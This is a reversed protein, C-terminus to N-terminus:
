NRLFLVGEYTEFPEFPTFVSTGNNLGYFSYEQSYTEFNKSVYHCYLKKRRNDSGTVFIFRDPYQHFFIPITSLVTNYVQRMDGNNSNVLDNIDSKDENVDGFGLNFGETIKQNPLVIPNNIRNYVILKEIDSKGKSIFSFLLKDNPNNSTAIETEYREINTM